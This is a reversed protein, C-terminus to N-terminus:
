HSDAYRPPPLRTLIVGFTILCIFFIQRVRLSSPRNFRKSCYECEYKGFGGKSEDGESSNGSRPRGGSSYVGYLPFSSPPVRERDARSPSAHTSGSGGGESAYPTTSPTFTASTASTPAPASSSPNSNNIAVAATHGGASAAANQRAAISASSYPHPAYEHSSTSTQAYEISSRASTWAHSPASPDDSHASSSQSVISHAHSRRSSPAYSSTSVPSRGVHGRQQERNDIMSIPDGRHLSPHIPAPERSRSAYLGPGSAATASTSLSSALGGRTFAETDSVARGRNAAPIFGPIATSIPPLAITSEASTPSQRARSVTPSRSSSSYPPAISSSSTSRPSALRGRTTTTATTSQHDVQGSSFSASRVPTRVEPRRERSPRPSTRAAAHVAQHPFSSPPPNNTRSPRQHHPALADLNDSARIGFLQRISPLSSQNPETHLDQPDDDQFM